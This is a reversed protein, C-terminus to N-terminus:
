GIMNDSDLNEQYSDSDFSSIMIRAQATHDISENVPVLGVGNHCIDDLLKTYVPDIDENERFSTYDCLIEDGAKIDQVAHVLVGLLEAKRILPPSFPPSETEDEGIYTYEVWNVNVEKPTCGHNSFTNNCAISASWGTTGTEFGYSIFFDRLQTYMEAEPFDDVFKNLAIWQQSDVRINLGADHPLVFHGAPCDETAFLARGKIPHQRVETAYFHNDANFWQKLFTHCIPLNRGPLSKCYWHEWARSMTTYQRHTM